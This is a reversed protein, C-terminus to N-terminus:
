VEGVTLPGSHHMAVGLLTILRPAYPLTFTQCLGPFIRASTPVDAPPSGDASSATVRVPSSGCSGADNRTAAAACALMAAAPRAAACTQFNRLACLWSTATSM